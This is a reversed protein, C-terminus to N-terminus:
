FSLEEEEVAHSTSCWPDSCCAGTGRPLEYDAINPLSLTMEPAPVTFPAEALEAGRLWLVAGDEVGIDRLSETSHSQDECLPDGTVCVMCSTYLSYRAHHGERLLCRTSM